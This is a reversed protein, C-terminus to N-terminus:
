STWASAAGVDDGRQRRRPTKARAEHLLADFLKKEDEKFSFATGVPESASAEVSHLWRLAGGGDTLTWEVV